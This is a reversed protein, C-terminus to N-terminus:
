TEEAEASDVHTRLILRTVRQTKRDYFVDLRSSARNAYRHFDVLTVQDKGVFFRATEDVSLTLFSCRGCPKFSLSGPLTAPASVTETNSEVAEELVRLKM